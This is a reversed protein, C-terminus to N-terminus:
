HALFQCNSNSYWECTGCIYQLMEPTLKKQIEKILDQYCYEKEELHFYQVVRADMTKVKENASCLDNGLRNPCCTCLEDTSFVLQIMTKEESRLKQVIQDMHKVFDADYGKGEYSQTCLLHHPRLKLEM